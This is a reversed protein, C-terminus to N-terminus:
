IRSLWHEYIDMLVTDREPGNYDPWLESQQFRVEYLTKAPLGDRGLALTEPNPFTGLTRTVVGEKGRVYVPTRIHGM